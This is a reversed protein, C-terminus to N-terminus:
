GDKVGIFIFETVINEKSNNNSKFRRYPINYVKINKVCSERLIQIIQNKSLLGESNYSIIIYKAKLGSILRLFANYVKNKYCFESKEDKKYKRIGTYGKIEPNDYKAITELLHYNAIFQRSNYPPDIYAIDCSIKDLINFINENHAIHSFKSPIIEIHKLTLQKYARHIGFNILREM